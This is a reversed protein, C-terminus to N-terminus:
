RRACVLVQKPSSGTFPARDLDGYRGRITLGSSALHRLIEEAFYQRLPYGLRSIPADIAAGVEVLRYQITLQRSDPDYKYDEWQEFRRGRSDTVVRAIKDRKPKNMLADLNPQYIDFAFLGDPNLLYRVTMLFEQLEHDTLIFQVTNFCCMILDFGGRFPPSRIDGQVWGIRADRSRAIRLMEHSTDVGAVLTDASRGNERFLVDALPLTIAGTGCGLELLSRTRGSILSRYFSITPTRDGEVLDYYDAWDDYVAQSGETSM